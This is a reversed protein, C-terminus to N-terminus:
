AAEKELLLTLGTHSCIARCASELSVVKAMDAWLWEKEGVTDLITSLHNAPITLVQRTSSNFFRLATLAQDRSITGTIHLAVIRSNHKRAEAVKTQMDM